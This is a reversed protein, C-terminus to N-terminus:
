HFEGVESRVECDALDLIFEDPESEPVGRPTPPSLSQEMQWPRYPSFFRSKKKHFQCCLIMWGHVNIVAGNRRSMMAVRIVERPLNPLLGMEKHDPTSESFHPIDSVPSHSNPLIAPPDIGSHFSRILCLHLRHFLSNFFNFVHHRYFLLPQCKKQREESHGLGLSGGGHGIKTPGSTM